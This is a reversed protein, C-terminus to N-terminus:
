LTRNQLEIPEVRSTRATFSFSKLKEIKLKEQLIDFNEKSCLLYSTQILVPTSILDFFLLMFIYCYVPLAGFEM